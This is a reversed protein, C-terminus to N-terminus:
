FDYDNGPLVRVLVTYRDYDNGPLVRVLVRIDNFTM